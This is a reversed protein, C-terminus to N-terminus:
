RGWKKVIASHMVSVVGGDIELRCGARGGEWWGMVIEWLTVFLGRVWM